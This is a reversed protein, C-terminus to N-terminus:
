LTRWYTLRAMKQKNNVLPHSNTYSIKYIQVTSREVDYHASMQMEFV